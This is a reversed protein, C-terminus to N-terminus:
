ARCEVGTRGAAGDCQRRLEDLTRAVAMPEAPSPWVVRLAERPVGARLHPERLGLLRQETWRQGLRFACDGERCGSVVVGAAGARLAYEVFSPPLQGTCVLDLAVVDAGLPGARPAEACGLVVFTRRGRRAALGADLARRLSDLPRRPMDIGTLLEARRRFPTSSPCAGVCIGCGACLDPDVQALQRVPRGATQWHPHPVMTIATYPCDVFCRRCGNCNAPDVRAPPAAAASRQPLFPLVLLTLVAAVLLAWVFGASTADVLPHVFLLIWDFALRGPVQSLDAPLHSEVPLLGSLALLGLTTALGLRRSPLVEAHALRQVHFWLAFLMLLPVGLHVFVFLSFLRDGVAAADVFNRSLPAGFLPLADLWGATAEASFQGLQDWHLWFGGVGSAFAFLLLPIGTWWSHRRITRFHGLAAERVLHLVMVVIFGDAAYRHASRLWGGVYWPQRALRAISEYAASASTDLAAYLYIGSGVLWWFFLFGLAGLHRLPNAAAGFVRDFSGELRQWTRQAPPRDARIRNLDPRRRDSDDPGAGAAAQLIVAAARSSMM